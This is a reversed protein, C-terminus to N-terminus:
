KKASRTRKAAPAAKARTARKAKATAAVVAKAAAQREAAAPGHERAHSSGQRTSGDRYSAYSRAITAPSALDHARLVRRRMPGTLGEGFRARLDDGSLGGAKAEAIATAIGVKVDDPQAGYAPLDSGHEAAFPRAAVAAAIKRSLATTRPM